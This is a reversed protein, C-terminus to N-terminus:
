MAYYEKLLGALVEPNEENVVHGTHKVTKLEADKIHASLYYAADLNARDKEGCIILVRCAIMQLRDSFDLNKMSNVLVSLEKKSFGVFFSQPLFRFIMTQIWLMAKPVRYPTGILVLSNVKSPFDLAYNLALIGGLSIGCIDLQGDIENCYAAFAAYLNAYSGENGRLILGLDPCLLDEKHEMYSITENWSTAKQGLGHVFIKM